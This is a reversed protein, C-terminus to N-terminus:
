RGVRNDAETVWVGCEQCAYTQLDSLGSTGPTIRSLRLTRGCGVLAGAAHAARGRPGMPLEVAIGWDRQRAGGHQPVSKAIAYEAVNGM